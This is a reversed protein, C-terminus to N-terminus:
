EALYKELAALRVCIVLIEAALKIEALPPYTPAIRLNKDDPDNGYPFTAGASTMVVGAEKM